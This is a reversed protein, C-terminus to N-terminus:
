SCFEISCIVGNLSFVSCVGLSFLYYGEMGLLAMFGLFSYLYMSFIALLSLPFMFALIFCSSSSDRDTEEKEGEKWFYDLM